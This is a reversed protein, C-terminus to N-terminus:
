ILRDVLPLLDLLDLVHHEANTITSNDRQKSHPNRKLCTRAGAALGAEIDQAPLAAPLRM